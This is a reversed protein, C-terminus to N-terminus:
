LGLIVSNLHQQCVCCMNGNEWSSSSIGEEFAASRVDRERLSLFLLSACAFVLRLAIDEPNRRVGTGQTETHMGITAAIM